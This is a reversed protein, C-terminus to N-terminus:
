RVMFHGIDIKYQYTPDELENYRNFHVINEHKGWFILIRWSFPITWLSMELNHMVQDASNKM